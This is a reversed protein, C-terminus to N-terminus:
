WPKLNPKVEPGENSRKSFGLPEPWAVSGLRNSKPDGCCTSLTMILGANLLSSQEKTLSMYVIEYRQLKALESNSLLQSVTVATLEHEQM